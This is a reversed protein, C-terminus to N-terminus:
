VANDSELGGHVQERNSDPKGAAAKVARCYLGGRLRSLAFLRGIGDLFAMLRAAGRPMDGRPIFTWYGIRDLTMGTAQVMKRLVPESLFCDSSLHRTSLGLWSALRAYWLHAGNPTLCIFAGGPRLVRHVQRLVTQQQLMHELAGVCLVIAIEEDGVTALTEAPDVAFVIRQRQPHCGSLREARAIMRPSLDTGRAERFRDALARLHMGDGCGIELLVEDAHPPLLRNIIGLRYRLLRDAEGHCDHYHDALRDFFSCIDERSAIHRTTLKGSASM